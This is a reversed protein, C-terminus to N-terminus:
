ELPKNGAKSDDLVLLWDNGEGSSPPTFERLGTNEYTGAKKATGTRPNYWWAEIPNQLKKMVVSVPQGKALYVLMFSHDSAIAARIHDENEPNRGYIISQDPILKHFPRLELIKRFYTMSVAGPRDMATRWDTLCPIAYPGGKKHMQWIAHNGYTYGFSGALIDWYAHVRVDYANFFGEKYAERNAILSDADLDSPTLRYEWFKVPIGEYAPEGDIVPKLPQLLLDHEAFRYVVQFRKSHGSQYMNFDLWDENHLHYSSSTFGRPHYTILHNGGDGKKIGRAMSRWIELVETNEVSRDGGLIWVIPKDRYRKGLYEGYAYANQKNFVVPGAGAFKTYLKDGWTPLMGIFLGLAAAKNVIFDVHEFYAENPKSPDMDILPLDGYANPVRLGDREALVVAQIVTFGKAARNELYEVAEERNLRHFLEWATDGLWFFPAGDDRMLFRHNESVILRQAGSQFPVSVVLLIILLNKM